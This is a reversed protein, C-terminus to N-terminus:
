KKQLAALAINRRLQEESLGAGDSAAKIQGAAVDNVVPQANPQLAITATVLASLNGTFGGARAKEINEVIQAEGEPVFIIPQRLKAMKGLEDIETPDSTEYWGGHFLIQNGNAMYFSAGPVRSGFLRSKVGEM